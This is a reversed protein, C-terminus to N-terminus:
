GEARTQRKISHIHFWEAARDKLEPRDRLVIYEYEGM